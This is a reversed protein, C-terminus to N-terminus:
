CAGATQAPPSRVSLSSRFDEFLASPLGKTFIDAYQFRSPVHLVRVHGAKVLDRVFHIDIEIHKTRQHQVPNASMYVASVNDCYVLTATSLPSHLERLLNRVWATEAVVNAVGRYEAEADKHLSDIIQRLLAPASATLIIDDVYILLYSVQSGQTYIFLSSDCRSHTFGARTAYGAFRQFWARPAQKLGYLSRQLLCVHTPHHPDVFGPPQHMYVTESLDGNLFANKVDLQHIPWHRSVVLTLVTRITAPKVVPSFTEDFDVGMQQSSGNAVLRAKYRSLTGDAHFKHKFLWMSRVLNIDAPKPVLVWTGNKVLANYEDYMANSWNPDKLAIFPSKPIPSVSSTHLSLREVPKLTGLQSRTVMTHTRTPETETPFPQTTPNLPPQPSTQATDHPTPPPSHIPTTHAPSNPETPTTATARALHPLTIPQQQVPSRPTPNTHINNNFSHTTTIPISLQSAVTPELFHYSPPNSPTMSKYPFQTEDFTVHRSLIIKNTQLNLCRYGRHYAPFGLFICPTARPALKHPSHLHPYCLCGFIRLRSYDPDKHFLKTFPIDNQIAKSPLLNLLYTAMHLAEVWFPPPLHAQFLLTRITNNITRIMREAKGNQQSTKPCSFRLHIGNTNFLTHLQNNDFEGGHDCQLSKIDCKFQNKVYNRFHVFKAFMDSKNKLPYIWVYHSFHDLFLVYYKFGSSSVIPSTWLDSHVIDFCHQVTSLSSHFPLKVHKGLQCAHCVHTSKDKHCSIFHRSSLSRLVEDGPHGLRQHWTTSSTSVFAVPSTSPKTVPYLDGSSDCRLLIHRTLFDKVSFGFADFEITCNNDTDMNWTPDQLSMTSFASPLTTPQSPYYMPAQGLIGNGGSYSTVQGNPAHQQAVYAHPHIPQTPPQALTPPGPQPFHTHSYHAQPAYLTPRPQVFRLAQSNPSYSTNPNWNNSSGTGRPNNNRSNLGARNRHDHIFKCRDGFKCSGRSFHNCLQPINTPKGKTNGKSESSAMLITPSSSSSEYPTSTDMPDSFTSEKLLLMSRATEFSPLEDRNRIIEVLTAFRADLGNIMYIVLNKDSVDGGLNKIRGAMSRLKNCYENVSLKGIKLSRIENDLNIARNDKNDHFLDKLHDWLQKANGPTTVVQEQLSDCLSSLIWMKILDDLQCWDPNTSASDSEVHAKLGLSGLHILSFSSWPNYNHKELDLKIPVKNPISFPIIKDTPSPTDGGTM